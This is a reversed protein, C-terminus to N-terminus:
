KHRHKQITYRTTFHSILSIFFMIGLNCKSVPHTKEYERKLERRYEDLLSVVEEYEEKTRFLLYVFLYQYYFVVISQYFLEHWFKSFYVFILAIYKKLYEHKYMYLDVTDVKVMISM